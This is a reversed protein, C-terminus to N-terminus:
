CANVKLLDETWWLINEKQHLLLICLHTFKRLVGLALQLFIWEIKNEIKNLILKTSTTIVTKLSTIEVCCWTIHILSYWPTLGLLECRIKTSFSNNFSWIQTCLTIKCYFSRNKMQPNYTYFIYLNYGLIALKNQENNDLTQQKLLGSLYSLIKNRITLCVNQLM